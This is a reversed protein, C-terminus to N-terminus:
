KSAKIKNKLRKKDNVLCRVLGVLDSPELSELGGDILANRLDRHTYYLEYVGKSITQFNDDLYEKLEDCARIHLHGNKKM